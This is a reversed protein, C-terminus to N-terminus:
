NNNSQIEYINGDISTLDNFIEELENGHAIMSMVGGGIFLPPLFNYIETLIKLWM